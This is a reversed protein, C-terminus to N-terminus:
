ILNVTKPSETKYTAILVDQNLPRTQESKGPNSAGSIQKTAVLSESMMPGTQQQLLLLENEFNVPSKRKLGIHPKDYNYLQVARDVEITLQEYSKISRHKLYNNKIIGNIREAKGNEWAFECMSNKIGLRKTEVLFEKAYYQGGGDSHFILDTLNKEKRTRVAKQLAVLTTQNTHLTNSTQHGVIRRSYADLIFTIYYFRDNLEYYTIDSQWAQNINSLPLDKLLDPFRVVGTSNTTRRYNKPQVSWLNYSKCFSEFADRGLSTPRIKYYMDRMGMTPHDQRIEYIVKLMQMEEEQRKIFCNLQKHTAQKSIGIAWYL